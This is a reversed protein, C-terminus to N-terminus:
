QALPWVWIDSWYCDTRRAEYNFLAVGTRGQEAQVTEQTVLAGNVYYAIHEGQAVILLRNPEATVMSSLDYVNTLLQGDRTQALGFGGSTDVYAVDMSSDDRWRYVLGCGADGNPTLISVTASLVFDDYIALDSGILEVLSTRDTAVLSKEMLYLDRAPQPEVQGSEALENIVVAPDPSNWTRLALPLGKYTTGLRATIKLNDFLVTAPDTQDDRSAVLLGVQGAGTLRDDNVSGVLQNDVYLALTGGHALVGLTWVGTESALVDSDTWTRLAYVGSEDQYLARWRGETNIKIQYSGTLGAGQARVVFGLEAYSPSGFLRAEVQMYLDDFELDGPPFGILTAGPDTVRMRLREQTLPIPEGDSGTWLPEGETFMDQFAVRAFGPTLTLDYDGATEGQEALYRAVRITYTGDEALILAELGADHVLSDLDDNEGAVTGSPAVVQLVPDLDGRTTVALVAIVQGASGKFTWDASPTTDGLTGRVTEFYTLTHDDASQARARATIGIAPAVLSGALLGIWSWMLFRRVLGAM